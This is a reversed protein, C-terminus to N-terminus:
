NLRRDKPTHALVGLLGESDLRTGTQRELQILNKQAEELSLAPGSHFRLLDLNDIIRTVEQAQDVFRSVLNELVNEQCSIETPVKLVLDFVGPELSWVELTALPKAPTGQLRGSAPQLAKEPATEVPLQFKGGITKEVLELLESAPRPMPKDTQQYVIQDSAVPTCIRMQGEDTYIRLGQYCQQLRILANKM